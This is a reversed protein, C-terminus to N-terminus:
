RVEHNQGRLVMGWVLIVGFHFNFYGSLTFISFWFKSQEKYEREFSDALRGVPSITPFPSVGLTAHIALFCSLCFYTLLRGFDLTTTSTRLGYVCFRVVGSVTDLFSPLFLEV